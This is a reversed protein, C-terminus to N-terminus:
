EILLDPPIGLADRLKRIQAISLPRKKSFFESVRSRGGLLPALQARTMDRQELMFDVVDQPTGSEDIPDHETEYAEVLISLLELRDYERTGRVPARDLLADMEAVAQRYDKASRIARNTEYRVVVAMM